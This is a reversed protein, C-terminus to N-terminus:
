DNRNKKDKVEEAELQGAARLRAIIEEVADEPTGAVSISWADAPIELTAFQSDLLDPNMFPHHRANMREKLLAAPAHLYVFCIENSPFGAALVDRYEQKLASCAFIASEGKHHYELMRQHLAALWPERDADTLPIGAAMKRRNEQSHFDDADEFKWKIRAALLAGITTKGVGSVGMLVLIMRSAEFCDLFSAISFHLLRFTAGQLNDFRNVSSAPHVV